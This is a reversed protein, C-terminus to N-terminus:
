EMSNIMEEVKKRSLTEEEADLIFIAPGTKGKFGGQVRIKQKGSQVGTGETIEFVAKEGLITRELKSTKTDKLQEQNENKGAPQNQTAGSELGQLIQDKFQPGFADGISALVLMCKHNKDTYIAGQGLSKGFIPVQFRGGGVPELPPPVQISIIEESIKQVEAPQQSTSSAIYNKMYFVGGCCMVIVLVFIVGLLILFKGLCGGCGSSPQQPPYGGQPYGQPPNGQPPPYNSM